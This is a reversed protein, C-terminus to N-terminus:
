NRACFHGNHGSAPARPETLHGRILPCNRAVVALSHNQANKRRSTALPASTSLLVTWLVDSQRAGLTMRIGFENTRRAVSYSVVSYLGFTAVALALLAFSGFLMTILHERQWEPQM